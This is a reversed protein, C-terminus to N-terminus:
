GRSFNEEREFFIIDDLGIIDESFFVPEYVKEAEEFFNGGFATIFSM